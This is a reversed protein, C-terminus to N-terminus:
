DIRRVKVRLRPLISYEKSSILQVIQSDDKWVVGNLADEAAKAINTLDPRSTPMIIHLGAELKRSRSWSEPIPMFAEIELHIPGDLPKRGGMVDMAAARIRAEYERTKQPTYARPKGGRMTVRARAKAIPVGLLVFDVGM